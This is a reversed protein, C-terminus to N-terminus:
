YIWPILKKTRSAYENFENGYKKALHADLRPIHIWLFMGTMFLPIVASLGSGTMLALGIAWIIDGFYNIHMSVAFLGGTFLKGKNEPQQKFHKRQFESWTNIFSGIVFLVVGTLGGAGIPSDNGLALLVITFQIIAIWVGVTVAELLDIKRPLLVLSTLAMRLLLVLLAVAVLIQRSLTVHHSPFFNLLGQLAEVAPRYLLLVFALSLTFLQALLWLLTTMSTNQFKLNM